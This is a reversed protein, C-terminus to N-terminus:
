GAVIKGYFASVRAAIKDWAHNQIATTRANAAMTSWLTDDTMLRGVGAATQAVREEFPAGHGVIFGDHGNTVIGEVLDSGVVPLGCAMAQITAVSALEMDSPHVFVRGQALRGALQDAPVEGTFSLDPNVRQLEERMGPDPVPGIITAPVGAQRAAAALIDFRKHRAVVGLGIVGARQSPLALPRFREHDVGFPIYTLSGPRTKPGRLREFLPLVRPTLAIVGQAGRVARADRARWLHELGRVESIWYRSHSTLVYPRRLVTLAEATIPSHAHLVDFRGRPLQARLTAASLVERARTSRVGPIRNIIAVDHGLRQLERSLNAIYDEVAGWGPPPIPISGVGILAIRLRVSRPPEPSSESPETLLGPREASM